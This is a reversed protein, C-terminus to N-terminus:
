KSKDRVVHIAKGTRLAMMVADAQDNTLDLVQWLEGNVDRIYVENTRSLRWVEEQREKTM